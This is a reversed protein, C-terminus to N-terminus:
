GSNKLMRVILATWGTQHSAGCGRGTDGHFYEYLWTLNRWHPSDAFVRMDGQWASRGNQDPLFISGIRRSLECAVEDLNMM